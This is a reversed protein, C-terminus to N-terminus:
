RQGINEEDKLWNIPNTEIYLRIRNHEAEDRIIHEYYNRQWIRPVGGQQQVIKRTVSSKYQRIISGLSGPQVHFRPSADHRSAVQLPADHHAGVPPSTIAAREHLIIIGHVHNPMVVFAGLEANPFHEPIARWCEDAVRGRDSCRMQGQIVEGFMDIRGQTVLTIFYAGPQSYDYAPL